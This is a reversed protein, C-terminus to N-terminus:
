LIVVSFATQGNRSKAKEQKQHTNTMWTIKYKSGERMGLPLLLAHFWLVVM